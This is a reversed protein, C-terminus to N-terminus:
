QKNNSTQQKPNITQQKLNTTQDRLMAAVKVNMQKVNRQKLEVTKGLIFENM